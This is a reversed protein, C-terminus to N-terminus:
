FVRASFPIGEYETTGYYLVKSLARTGRSQGRKPTIVVNCQFSKHIFWYRSKYDKLRNYFTKLIANYM